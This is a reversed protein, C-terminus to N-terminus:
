DAFQQAIVAQAVAKFDARQEFIRIAVIAAFAFFERAVDVVLEEAGVGALRPRNVMEQDIGAM